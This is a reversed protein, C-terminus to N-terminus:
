PYVRNACREFRDCEVWPGDPKGAVYAGRYM